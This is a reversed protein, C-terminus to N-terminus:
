GEVRRWRRVTLLLLLGLVLFGVIAFLAAELGAAEAAHPTFGRPEYFRLALATALLGYITPGTFNSVQAAVSFLGYFETAKEPPSVQGVVTRSVSQVGTLAFGALAGIVNFMVLSHVFFLGTVVLAMMGLSLILALRSGMHHTILGFAFAGIVSTVQVIMMFIILQQQTMGFLVAGIIAAFDLVMMIGNNFVMFAVLFKVFERYSRAEKFTRWLKKM